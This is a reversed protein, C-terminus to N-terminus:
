DLKFAKVVVKSDAESILDEPLFVADTALPACGFRQGGRDLPSQNTKNTKCYAQMGEDELAIFHMFLRGANAHPGNVASMWVRRAIEPKQIAAGSVPAGKEIVPLAQSVYAVYAFTGTGAALQQSAPVGSEVLRPEIAAMKELLGPYVKAATNLGARYAATARPDSLLIQNKWRADRWKPDALDEWTRPRNSDNMKSTNWLVAFSAASFSVGIQNPALKVIDPLQGWGPFNEDNLKQFYEPHEAQATTESGSLIDNQITKNSAEATFRTILSSGTAVFYDVKMGYKAEFARFTSGFIEYASTTYVMVSKEAQAAKVLKDMNAAQQANLQPAQGYAPAGSALALIAAALVPSIVNAYM